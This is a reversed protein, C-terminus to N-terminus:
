GGFLNLQTDMDTFEVKYNKNEGKPYKLVDLKFNRMIVKKDTKSGLIKVYRYKGLIEVKKLGYKKIVDEKTVNDKGIEKKFQSSKQHHHFNRTHFSSGDPYIYGYTNVSRGTYLFNLAQYIYGHHDKNADAYSVIILPKPLLKFSETVFKSLTNKPLNDVTILRNLEYVLHKFKEGAIATGLMNNPSMGYTVVGKIEQNMYLGYAYSVSCLRKAYHKNLLWDAYVSKPVKQVSIQMIYGEMVLGIKKRKGILLMVILVFFFLVELYLEEKKGYIM